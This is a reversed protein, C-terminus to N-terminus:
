LNEAPQYVRDGHPPDGRPNHKGTREAEAGDRERRGLAPIREDLELALADVLQDRGEHGLPLNGTDRERDHLRRVDRAGGAVAQAIGRCAAERRRLREPVDPLHRARIRRHRDHLQGLAALQM